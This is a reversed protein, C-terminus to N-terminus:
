CEQYSRRSAVSAQHREAGSRPAESGLGLGLGLLLAIGHFVPFMHNTWYELVTTTYYQEIKHMLSM